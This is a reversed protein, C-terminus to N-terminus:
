AVTGPIQGAGLPRTPDPHGAEGLRARAAAIADSDRDVALVEMGAARFLAAHGGGGVTADGARRCGEAWARVADALVPVHYTTTTPASGFLVFAGGATASPARYTTGRPPNLRPQRPEFGRGGTHCVPVRVLQAVAGQM